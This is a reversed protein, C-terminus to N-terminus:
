AKPKEPEIREKRCCGVKKGTAQWNEYKWCEYRYRALHADYKEIFKQRKKLMGELKSTDILMEAHEIEGPFLSEFVDSLNRDSRHTM